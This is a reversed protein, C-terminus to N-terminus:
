KIRTGVRVSRSLERWQGRNNMASRIEDVVEVDIERCLKDIYTLAQKGRNATGKTPQWLVLSSASLEPHRVCHGALKMRRDAFKNAVRSSRSLTPWQDAKAERIRQPEYAADKYLMRKDEERPSQHPDMGWKRLTYCNWCHSYLTDNQNQSLTLLEM